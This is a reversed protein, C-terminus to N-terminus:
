GRCRARARRRLAVGGLGGLGVCSRSASLSYRWLPLAGQGFQGYVSILARSGLAGPGQPGHLARGGAHRRVPDRAARLARRRRHADAIAGGRGGGVLHGLAWALNSLCFALALDLGAREAADSLLAMAPAWFAGLTAFAVFIVAGLLLTTGPLPLVVAMVVAGALGVRIPLLRGRRDSLRGALPSVVAEGAATVLFIAGIVVGVAGLDDLRLPALVEIVGGFLAPLTFLWFGILVDRRRLARLLAPVGPSPAPAAAPRRWAWFILGAAM